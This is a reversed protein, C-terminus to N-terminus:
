RETCIRSQRPQAFAAPASVASRMMGATTAYEERFKVPQVVNVELVPTFFSIKRYTGTMASMAPVPTIM